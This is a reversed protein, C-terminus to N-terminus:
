AQVERRATVAGTHEGFSWALASMHDDWLQKYLGGATLLEDHTGRQRIEGQDLVLIQDARTITSLRHAIILLTKGVILRSIAEQILAENEPDAFATAEDLVVIPADLIMARAIAIRQKEGGSLTGGREGIVTDYGAPLARIFDDARAARAVAFVEEDSASPRGFRINNMITDHFLYADQFVFAVQKLLLDPDIQRVDVGGVRVAGKRVDWFRPVLRAITTKGSGSPGVLATVTGPAVDFSVDNLVDREEYRFTVHEFTIANDAPLVPTTAIPLEPADLVQLIRRGGDVTIQFSHMIMFFRMLPGGIGIGLVLFLILTDLSIDGRQYLWAGVPLVAVINGGIFTFFFSGPWLFKRAYKVELDTYNRIAQEAKTFTEGTRNFIKIVQLGQLFEIVRANMGDLSAMYEHMEPSNDKFTSQRLVMFSIVIPVLTVIAMRWDVFFLIVISVISVFLASIIDPFNHAIYLEMQQIDDAVVKKLKGSNTQSFYGLPLKAMRDALKIRFRYLINFAAMHSVAMASGMLGFRALVVVVFIAALRWVRDENPTEQVIEGAILAILLYPAVQCFTSLTALIASIAMKAREPRIFEVLVRNAPIFPSELTEAPFTTGAATSEVADVSM